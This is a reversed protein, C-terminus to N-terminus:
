PSTLSCMLQCQFFGLFTGRSPLFIDETNRGLIHMKRIKRSDNNEILVERCEKKSSVKKLYLISSDISLASSSVCPLNKQYGRRLVLLVGNQLLSVVFSHIKTWDMQLLESKGMVM